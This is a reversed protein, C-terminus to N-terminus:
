GRRTTSKKTGWRSDALRGALAAGAAAGAFDLWVDFVSSTRGTFYQISEDTLAALLGGLLPLTRAGLLGRQRAALLAGLLAFETFHAAKRVLVGLLGSGEGAAEGGGPFLALLVAKVAESVAWSAEPPLLSNGWIFALTLVILGTLAARRRKDKEERMDPQELQGPM